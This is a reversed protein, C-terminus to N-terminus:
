DASVEVTYNGTLRGGRRSPSYNSVMVMYAGRDPPTFNVTLAGRDNTALNTGVPVAYFMLRTAADSSPTVVIVEGNVYDYVGDHQLNPALTVMRAFDDYTMGGLDSAYANYWVESGTLGGWAQADDYFTNVIIRPRTLGTNKLTVTYDGGLQTESNYGLYFLFYDYDYKGELTKTTEAGVRAFCFDDNPQEGVHVLRGWNDCDDAAAPQAVALIGLLLLGVLRGPFACFLNFARLLLM